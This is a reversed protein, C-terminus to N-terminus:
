TWVIEPPFVRSHSTSKCRAVSLWIETVKSFQTSSIAKKLSLLLM